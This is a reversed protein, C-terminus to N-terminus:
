RTRIVASLAGQIDVTRGTGKINLNSAMLTLRDNEDVKRRFRFKETITDNAGSFDGDAPYLNGVFFGNLTDVNGDITLDPVAEAATRVVCFIALEQLDGVAGAVQTAKLSIKVAYLTGTERFSLTDILGNTINNTIQARILM